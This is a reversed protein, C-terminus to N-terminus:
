IIMSTMIIKCHLIKMINNETSHTISTHSTFTNAPLLTVRWECSKSGNDAFKQAVVSMINRRFYQLEQGKTISMPLM